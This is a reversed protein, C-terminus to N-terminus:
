RGVLDPRVEEGDKSDFVCLTHRHENAVEPPLGFERFPWGSPPDENLEYKLAVDEPVDIALLFDGGGDALMPGGSMAIAIAIGEDMPEIETETTISPTLGGPPLDRFECWDVVEDTPKGDADYVVHSVGIFGEEIVHRAYKTNTAMYLRV